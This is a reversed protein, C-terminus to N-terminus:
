LVLQVADACLLIRQELLLLVLLGVGPHRTQARTFQLNLVPEVLEPHAGRGDQGGLM